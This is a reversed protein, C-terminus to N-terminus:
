FTTLVGHHKGPIGVFFPYFFGEVKIGLPVWTSFLLFGKERPFQLTILSIGFWPITKGSSVWPFTLKLGLQVV